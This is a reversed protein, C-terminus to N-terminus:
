EFSTSIFTTLVFDESDIPSATTSESKLRRMNIVMKCSTLSVLTAPLVFIIVPNVTRTAFCYAITVTSIVSLVSFSWNGTNVLTDMVATNNGQVINRKMFTTLWLAFHALFVVAGLPAAEIPTRRLDCKENFDEDRLANMLATLAFYRAWMYIFKTPPLVREGLRIPIGVPVIYCPGFDLLLLAAVARYNSPNSM